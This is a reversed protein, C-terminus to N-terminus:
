NKKNKIADELQSKFSELVHNIKAVRFKPHILVILTEVRKVPYKQNLLRTYTTLQNEYM